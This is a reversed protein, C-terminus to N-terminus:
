NTLSPCSLNYKLSNSGKPRSSFNGGPLYKTKAIKKYFTMIFTISTPTKYAPGQAHRARSEM